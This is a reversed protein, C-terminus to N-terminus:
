RGGLACSANIGHVYRQLVFYKSLSHTISAYVFSPFSSSFIKQAHLCSLVVVMWYTFTKCMISEHVIYMVLEAVPMSGVLWVSTKFHQLMQFLDIQLSGCHFQKKERKRKSIQVFVSSINATLLVLSCLSEQGIFAIIREQKHTHTYSLCCWHSILYCSLQFWLSGGHIKVRWSSVWGAYSFSFSLYLWLCNFYKKWSVVTWYIFICFSM